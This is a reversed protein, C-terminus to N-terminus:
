KAWISIFTSPLVVCKGKGKRKKKKKQSAPSSAMAKHM